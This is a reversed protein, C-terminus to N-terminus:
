FRSNEDPVDARRSVSLAGAKPPPGGRHSQRMSHTKAVVSLVDKKAIGTLSFASGLPCPPLRSSSCSVTLPCLFRLGAGFFLRMNGAVPSSGARLTLVCACPLFSSMYISALTSHSAKVPLTLGQCTAITFANSHKSWQSYRVTWQPIKATLSYKALGPHRQGRLVKLM